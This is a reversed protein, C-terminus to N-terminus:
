GAIHDVHLHTHLVAYVSVGHERLFPILEPDPDTGSDILVINKEDLRYTVILAQGSFFYGTNGKIQHWERPM